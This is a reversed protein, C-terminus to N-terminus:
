FLNVGARVEGRGIFRQILDTNGFHYVLTAYAGFYLPYSGPQYESGLAFALLPYNKRADDIQAHVGYSEWLPSDMTAGYRHVSELGAAVQVCPRVGSKERLYITANMELSYYDQLIHIRSSGLPQPFADTNYMKGTAGQFGISLTPTYHYGIQVSYSPQVSTELPGLPFEFGGAYIVIDRDGLAPFLGIGGGVSVTWRENRTVAHHEQEIERISAHTKYELADYLSALSDGFSLYAPTTRDESRFGTVLRLTQDLNGSLYASEAEALNGKLRLKEAEIYRYRFHNAALYLLVAKKCDKGSKAALSRDFLGASESGAYGPKFRGALSDLGNCSEGISEDSAQSVDHFQSALLRYPDSASASRGSGWQLLFDEIEGRMLLSDLVRSHHVDSDIKQAHLIGPCLGAPFLTCVMIIWLITKVPKRMQHVDRDVTRIIRRWSPHFFRLTLRLPLCFMQLLIM